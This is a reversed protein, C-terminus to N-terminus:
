RNSSAVVYPLAPHNRASANKGNRLNGTDQDGSTNQQPIVIKLPPVKPGDNTAKTEEAEADSDTSKNTQPKPSPCPSKKNDSTSSTNKAGVGITKSAPGPVKTGKEQRIPIRIGTSSKVPPDKQPVEGEKRKKRKTEESETTTNTEDNGDVDTFTRKQQLTNGQTQANPENETNSKEDSSKDSVKGADSKDDGSSSSDKPTGKFEYIDDEDKQNNNNNTGTTTSTLNTSNNEDTEDSPKKNETSQTTVVTTSTPKKIQQGTRNMAAETIVFFAYLNSHDIIM